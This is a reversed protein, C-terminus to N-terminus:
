IFKSLEFHPFRKEVKSGLYKKFVHYLYIACFQM